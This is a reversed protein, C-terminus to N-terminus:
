FTYRAGFEIRRGNDGQDPRNFLPSGLVSGEQTVNLHNLVNSSRVNLTLTQVHAAKADHTLTIMRQLNVDLYYTWPMVGRDRSITPGFGTNMLFGYPTVYACPVPAPAPTTSSPSPCLPTGAPAYRPRDNFDGDGNNDNGTTINFPMGGTSNFVTGLKFKYPLTLTINGFVNWLGNTDRRAYEGTNVGTTQPTLFYSDDTDDIIQNRVAGFFFQLRKLSHQELSAFEVNGWGRGTGQLQLINMDAPGPRPGTPSDNLPSNINEARMYHWMQAIEYSGSFTWGHPLSHTVGLDEISYFTNPLGPQQTYVTHIPTAGALPNCPPPGTLGGACYVTPNYVTSTIRQVGDLGLFTAYIQSQMRGTFMGAHAHINWTAKKDPTWTLGLRPTYNHVLTLDNQGYYRLGAALHLNPLLKWDDQIFAAIRVQVFDMEPNGETDSYDTPTDTGKLSNEYQLLPTETTSNGFIYTGNFNTPLRKHQDLFETQIGFKLLHKSTTWIADEDWTNYKENLRKTQLTNGGGTFYGAVQIQPATLVPTDTRGDWMVGVRLEHMLRPSITTIDTLHLIYEYRVENYGGEALVIGGVGLNEFTNHNANFSATFTNKQGFQWDSRAMGIWLAQPAPVTQTFFGPNSAPTIADVVAVNNIARHELTATFDSGKKRVPGSLEAGYRQKGIPAASTSFPDLANMWSSSNTAFLAGHFASQGPKTFIQVEGGGYPVNRYEASFNDPNVKIYAISSKPPLVPGGDGNASFGDIGISAGGPSGGAAAAMQQLERLLDDPDDALAQLQDGVLTQAPGSTSPSVDVTSSEADVQVTTEVDAPRLILKVERTATGTTLNMDLMGFGAMQAHLRHAGPAVCSFTFRGDSGSTQKAHNDLTILAGPIIAASPDVVQGRLSTGGCSTQAHALVTFVCIAGLAIARGWKGSM